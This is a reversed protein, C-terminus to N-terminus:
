KVKRLTFSPDLATALLMDKLTRGTLASTSANLACGDAEKEMRGHSFRFWHRSLCATGQVGGAALEAVEGASRLQVERGGLMTTGETDVPATGIMKGKADFIKETTRARGISDFGEFAFGVPNILGHCGACAPSSTRTTVAARTGSLPDPEIPELLEAPIANPDPPPISECLVDNRIRVGRLIPHTYPSDHMLLAARTLLGKRPTTGYVATLDATKAFSVASTMLDKYTGPSKWIQHDVFDQLEAVANARLRTPSVGALFTPNSPPGAIADLQLWQSYFHRVHDLARPSALLRRAQTGVGDPTSLGGSAAAAFLEADPKSGWYVYSLRSAIEYRDLHLLDTKGKVPMGSAEVKNLFEPSLLMAAIVMQLGIRKRTSGAANFLTAYSAEDASSLPRRLARLGFSKVFSSLCAQDLTTDQAACAGAHMTLAAANGVVASAAAAAVRYHSRVHEGTLTPSINDYLTAEAEAPVSDLVSKIVAAVDKGLLDSLTTTLERETLRELGTPSPDAAPSCTFPNEAGGIPANPGDPAPEDSGDSIVGTCSGTIAAILLLAGRTQPGREYM